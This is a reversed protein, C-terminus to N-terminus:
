AALGQEHSIEVNAPDRLIVTFCSGEGSNSSVEISGRHNNAIRKCTALGLGTGQFQERTHLREFLNFIREFHKPAIGIGNDQVVIKVADDMPLSKAIVSVQPTHNPPTFKLANSLLNQLLTIVQRRYGSFEVDAQVTIKASSNAIDARRDQLIDEILPKLSISESDKDGTTAEAYQLIDEVQAGIRTVIASAEDILEQGDESLHDKEGIALESLIMGISNAPSKLDHSVSYTFEAQEKRLAESNTLAHQLREKQAALRDMFDQLLRHGPLFVFAIEVVIILIALFLSGRELMQMQAVRSKSRNEINKVVADLDPLLGAREIQLLGNLSNADNPNELIGRAHVLYTQIRENLTSGDANPLFYLNRTELTNADDMSLSAHSTDFLDVAKELEEIARTLEQRTQVSQPGTQLALDQSLYIIRQSLMRQRGARNIKEADAVIKTAALETIVMSTVVSILLFTLASMYVILLRRLNM